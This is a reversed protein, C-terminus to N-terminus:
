MQALAARLQAMDAPEPSEFMLEEGSIPHSFGLVAAHLAQRGLAEYAVAVDAPLHALKTRFGAGYVPDGMVPHGLHAMHVRIQHTRGTELECEIRSAVPRRNRDLGFSEKVQFHTIAERGRVLPVVAMKERQTAHRGIPADVLGGSRDPAGWIYAVYQRTLSLTRGHDAFLMSLGAHAADNKAVVLLGSTDKDIRHVIGPRKVGGIGSLSDGCHYLLANVLTGNVNGAGPHVVLGAPKDIVLLHEDEYVIVLPINEPLPDAPEPAPVDLLLTQGAQVKHSADRFPKGNVSLYGDDILSQVRTRSIHGDRLTEQGSLYRDLRQGASEEDVVFEIPGEILSPEMIAARAAAPAKIIPAGPQAAGWDEPGDFYGAPHHGAQRKSAQRRKAHQNM